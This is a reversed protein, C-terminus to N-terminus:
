IKKQTRETTSGFDNILEWQVIGHNPSSNVTFSNSSFPAVYSVDNVQEDNFIVQQFNIYYPTPNKVTM